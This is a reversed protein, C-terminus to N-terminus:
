EPERVDHSVVQGPLTCVGPWLKRGPYISTHIGTHVDDGLFAGLKRRETEVMRGDGLCRQPAGDHRFNATITGAGLNSRLGIISDGCYSLHGISVDSMVISNKIEVAQGIHCRDGISTNGRLYCNPGIKCDSGILVHGEIYVGALIRTGSGTALRGDIVASAAVQGEESGPAAPVLLENLRLLDWPYRIRFSEAGAPLPTIDPAPPPEPDKGIWALPEGDAGVLCVPSDAHRVRQLDDQCIWANGMVVLHMEGTTPRQRVPFGAREIQEAQLEALRQNAVPCDALRRSTTIPECTGPAGVETICANM